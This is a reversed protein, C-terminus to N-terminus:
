GECRWGVGSADSPSLEPSSKSIVPTLPGARVRKATSSCGLGLTLAEGEGRPVGLDEWGVCDAARRREALLAGEAPRSEGAGGRSSAPLSRCEEEDAGALRAEECGRAERAGLEVEEVPGALSDGCSM